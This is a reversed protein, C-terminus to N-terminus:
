PSIMLPERGYEFAWGRAERANELRLEMSDDNDEKRADYNIGDADVDDGYRFRRTASGANNQAIKYAEHESTRPDHIDYGDPDSDYGHDGDSM